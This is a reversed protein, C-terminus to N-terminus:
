HWKAFRSRNWKTSGPARVEGRRERQFCGSARRNGSSVRRVGWGFRSTCAKPVVSDFRHSSRPLFRALRGVRREENVRADPLFM